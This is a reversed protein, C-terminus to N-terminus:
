SEKVNGSSVIYKRNSKGFELVKDFIEFNTSTIFTQNLTEIIRLMHQVRSDDLESFVDDLLLIPSEQCREKLYFYEALKLAVLFTKHQGQSAYKRLDMKNIKLSVEDRHPGVLTTGFRIEDDFKKILENRFKETIKEYVAEGDFSFSATYQIEPCENVDSLNKYTSLIYNKFEDIFAARKIMLKSGYNILQVNWPELITYYDSRSNKIESLIKNRHRLVKRYESLESFYVLDSQSIVLDLFKRREAPGGFTIGAKEPSLFVIPFKGIISSFTELKKGNLSYNKESNTLDYSIHIRYNSGLDSIVIADIEFKDEGIKVIVSDSSAYFSKTLCIYSIAELLNTKGEGNNGLIVNAREGFELDTDSHNRFNKLRISGIIM